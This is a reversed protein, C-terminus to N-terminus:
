NRRRPLGPCTLAYPEDGFYTLWETGSLNRTLRRCAEVLWDQPNWQWLVFGESSNLVALQRGDPHFAVQIVAREQHLRNIEQGDPLSLVRVLGNQDALALYASDAHFAFENLPFARERYVLTWDEVRWVRLDSNRMAFNWKAMNAIYRGDSSFRLTHNEQVDTIDLVAIEEGTMIDIIHTVRHDAVALYRGDPHLDMAWFRAGTPPLFQQRTEGTLSDCQVVRTRDLVLLSAGDPTFVAQSPNLEPACTSIQQGADVDIVYVADAVATLYRGNDSFRTGRVVSPYVFRITESDPLRRLELYGIEEWEPFPSFDNRGAFVVSGGDPSYNVQQVQFEVGFANHERGTRTDWFQAWGDWSVTMLDQGDPAFILRDTIEILRYQDIMRMPFFNRVIHFSDIDGLYLRRQETIIAFKNGDPHIAGAILRPFRFATLPRREVIDWVQGVGAQNFTFIQGSDGVFAADLDVEPLRLLEVGTATEWLQLGSQGEYWAGDEGADWREQWVILLYRGDSSFRVMKVSGALSELAVNKNEVMDWLVAGTPGAILLYANDPSFLAFEPQWGINTPVKAVLRRDTLLWVDAQRYGVGVMYRSDASFAIRDYMRDITERWLEQDTKVDHLVLVRELEGPTNAEVVTSYVIVNNDPTISASIGYRSSRPLTLIDARSELDHLSFSVFGQRGGLLYRGDASWDYVVDFPAVGATEGTLVDWILARQEEFVAFTSGFMVFRGDTSFQILNRGPTVTESQWLYLPLSELGQRLAYLSHEDTQRRAVEVALLVAAEADGGPEALQRYAHLLVSQWYNAAAQGILEAEWREREQAVATVTAQIAAQETQREDAQRTVAAILDNHAATLNDRDQVLYAERAAATEQGATLTTEAFSQRTAATDSQAQLEAVMQRLAGRESLMVFATFGFVLLAVYLASQALERLKL